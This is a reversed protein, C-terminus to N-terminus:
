YPTVTYGASITVSGCFCDGYVLPICNGEETINIAGNFMYSPTDDAKEASGMDPSPSLMMGIGNLAVGAGLLILSQGTFGAFFGSTALASTVGVAFGIGILAIGLIVKFIGDDKSGVVLPVIHISTIKEPLDAILEETDILNDDIYVHYEGARIKERIGNIQVCLARVAEQVSAVDLAFHEGYEKLDGYLYVDRLM